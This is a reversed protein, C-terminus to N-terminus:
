PTATVTPAVTPVLGSTATAGATPTGGGLATGTATPTAAPTTAPTTAAATVSPAASAGPLPAEVPVDLTVAGAKAFTFTVKTATGIALSKKLGTLTPASGNAIYIQGGAPALTAPSGPTGGTADPSSIAVLSDDQSGGNFLASIVQADGGQSVPGAVYVNRLNITGVAGNATNTTTRALNTMADNGSACAALAPAGLLAAAALMVAGRRLPHATAGERARGHLAAVAPATPLAPSVVPRRPFAISRAGLRRSM